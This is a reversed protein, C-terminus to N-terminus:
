IELKETERGPDAHHFSADDRRVRCGRGGAGLGHLQMCSHRGRAWVAGSEPSGPVPTSRSEPPVGRVWAAVTAATRFRNPGM